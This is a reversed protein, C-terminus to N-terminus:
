FQRRGAEAAPDMGARELWYGKGAPPRLGLPDKFVKVILAFPPAILFYFATLLVRAQFNGIIHAIVTWREWLRAALDRIRGRDKALESRTTEGTTM